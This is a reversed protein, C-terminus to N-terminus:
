ERFLEERQVALEEERENYEEIEETMTGDYVESIQLKKRRECLLTNLYNNLYSMTIQTFGAM